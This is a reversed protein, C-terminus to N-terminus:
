FKKQIFFKLGNLEKIGRDKYEPMPPPFNGIQPNKQFASTVNDKCLELTPWAHHQWNTEEEVQCKNSEQQMKEAEKINLDIKKSAKELKNKTERLENLTKIFNLDTMKSLELSAEDMSQVQKGTIAQAIKAICTEIDDSNKECSLKIESEIIEMINSSESLEQLTQITYAKQEATLEDPLNDWTQEEFNKASKPNMKMIRPPKKFASDSKSAKKEAEGVLEKESIEELNNNERLKKAIAEDFDCQYNFLFPDSPFDGDDMPKCWIVHDNPHTISSKSSTKLTARISNTVIEHKFEPLNVGLGSHLKKHVTATDNFCQYVHM